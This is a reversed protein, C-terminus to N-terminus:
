YGFLEGVLNRRAVPKKATAKRAMPISVPAAVEPAASATPAASASPSRKSSSAFRAQVKEMIGNQGLPQGIREPRIGPQVPREPRVEPKVPTEPRVEHQIGTDTTPPPEHCSLCEEIMQAALDRVKQSTEKLCGLATREILLRHLRDIVQKQCQCGCCDGNPCQGDGACAITKKKCCGKGDKSCDKHLAELAAYRVDEDCDDLMKLLEAVIEPTCNCDQKGLFKIAKLKLPKMKMEKKMKSALGMAGGAKAFKDSLLSPGLGLARAVPSLVNAVAQGLASKFINQDVFKGIAPAGMLDFISCCNKCQKALLVNGGAPAQARGPLAAAALGLVVLLGVHRKM